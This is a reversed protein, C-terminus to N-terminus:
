VKGVYRLGVQTTEKNAGSAEPMVHTEVFNDPSVGKAEAEHKVALEVAESLEIIM